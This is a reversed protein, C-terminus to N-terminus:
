LPFAWIDLLAASPKPPREVVVEAADATVGRAARPGPRARAIFLWSVFLDLAIVCSTGVAFGMGFGTLLMLKTAGVGLLAIVALVCVATFAHRHKHVATSRSRRVATRAARDSM